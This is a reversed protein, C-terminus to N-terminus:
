AAPAASRPEPDPAAFTTNGATSDGDVWDAPFGSPLDQPIPVGYAGVPVPLSLSQRPQAGSVTFVNATARVSQILQRAYLTEGSNADVLVRYQDVGGPLTLVTEWALRLDAIDLPFWVLNARIQEHFPGSDLVTPQEPRNLFRALVRPGFDALDVTPSPVPTGFEDTLEVGGQEDEDPTAVFNAAAMVAEEATLKPAPDRDDDITITRGVLADLTGDPGFRVAKAAQFIPIGKYQQELHVIRAGSTTEHVSLDADFEGPQGPALGLPAGISDVVQLARGVFDAPQDAVLGPAAELRQTPERPPPAFTIVAPNNTTPDVRDVAFQPLDVSLLGAESSTAAVLGDLERRREASTRSESFDRRDLDRAM